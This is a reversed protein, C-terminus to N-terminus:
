AAGENVDKVGDPESGACALFFFGFVVAGDAPLVGAGDLGVGEAGAV